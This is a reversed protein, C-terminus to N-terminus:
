KTDPVPTTVSLTGSNNNKLIVVTTTTAAGVIVVGTITWFWWSKYWPTPKKLLTFTKVNTAGPAVYIDTQLPFYNDDEALVKM